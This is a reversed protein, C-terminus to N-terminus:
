LVWRSARLFHSRIRPEPRGPWCALWLDAPLLEEQALPFYYADTEAIDVPLGGSGSADIVVLADDSGGSKRM